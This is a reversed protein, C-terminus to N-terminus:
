DEYQVYDTQECEMTQEWASRSVLGSVVRTQTLKIIHFRWEGTVKHHVIYAILQNSRNIKWKDM